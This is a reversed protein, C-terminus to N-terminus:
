TRTKITEMQPGSQGPKIRLDSAFSGGSAQPTILIGSKRKDAQTFGFPTMSPREREKPDNADIRLCFYKGKKEEGTKADLIKYKSGVENKDM